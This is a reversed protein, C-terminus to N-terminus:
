QAADTREGPGPADRHVCGACGSDERRKLHTCGQIVFDTTIEIMNRRGDETWGRQYMQTTSTPRPKNHCAEYRFDSGQITKDHSRDAYEYGEMTPM